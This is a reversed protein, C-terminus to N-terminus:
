CLRVALHRYEPFARFTAMLELCAVLALV